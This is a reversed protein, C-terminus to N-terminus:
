LISLISMHHVFHVNKIFLILITQFKVQYIKSLGSCFEEMIKLHPRLNSNFPIFNNIHTSFVELNCIVTFLTRPYASPLATGLNEVFRSTISPHFASLRQFRAPGSTLIRLRELSSMNIFDYQGQCGVMLKAADERSKKARHM